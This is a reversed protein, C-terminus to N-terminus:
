LPKEATRIAAPGGKVQLRQGTDELKENIIKFVMLNKEDMNQALIYQSDSSFVVGQSWHGIRAESVKTLKLSEARYLM